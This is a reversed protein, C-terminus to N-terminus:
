LYSIQFPWTKLKNNIFITEIETCKIGRTSFWAHLFILRYTFSSLIKFLFTSFNFCTLSFSYFSLTDPFIQGLLSSESVSLSNSGLPFISQSIFFKVWSPLNVSQYLIQGLLSSQSVSLSNSGLPFISQSIFSIIILLVYILLLPLFSCQLKIYIKIADKKVDKIFM